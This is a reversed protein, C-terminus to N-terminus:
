AEVKLKLLIAAKVITDVNITVLTSAESLTSAKVVFTVFPSELIVLAPKESAEAVTV